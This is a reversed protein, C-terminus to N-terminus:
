SQRTSLLLKILELNKDDQSIVNALFDFWHLYNHLYKTSVGRFRQMWSNWDTTIALVLDSNEYKTQTLTSINPSLEFLKSKTIHLTDMFFTHPTTYKNVRSIVPNNERNKYEISDSDLKGTRDCVFIASSKSNTKTKTLKTRQGKHSYPLKVELIEKVNRMRPSPLNNLGNLLKHRWNFSTTLSIEVTDAAKRISDGNIMCDLYKQIKDLNHIGSFPTKTLDNYSKGCDRCLYRKRSKYNGKSVIHHSHCYPCERSNIYTQNVSCYPIKLTEPNQPYNKTFSIFNLYDNRYKM